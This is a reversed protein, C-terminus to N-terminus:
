EGDNGHWKSAHQMKDHWWSYQMAYTNTEADTAGNRAHLIDFQEDWRTCWKMGNCWIWKLDDLHRFWRQLLAEYHKRIDTILVLENTMKAMISTHMRHPQHRCTNQNISHRRQLPTHWTNKHDIHHSACAHLSPMTINSIKTGTKSNNQHCTFKISCLSGHM